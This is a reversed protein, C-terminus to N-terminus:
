AIPAIHHTGTLHHTKLQLHLEGNTEKLEITLAAGNELEYRVGAATATVRLPRLPTGDIAPYGQLLQIAGAQLHITGNSQIHYKM